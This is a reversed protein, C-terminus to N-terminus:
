PHVYVSSSKSERELEFSNRHIKFVRKCNVCKIAPSEPLPKNLYLNVIDEHPDTLDIMGFEHECTNKSSNGWITAVDDIITISFKAKLKEEVQKCINKILVSLKNMDNDVTQQSAPTVLIVKETM